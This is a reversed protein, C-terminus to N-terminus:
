DNAHSPNPGHISHSRNRRKDLRERLESITKGMAEHELYKEDLVLNGTEYYHQAAQYGLKRLRFLNSGGKLPTAEPPRNALFNKFGLVVQNKRVRREYDERNKGKRSHTNLLNEVNDM